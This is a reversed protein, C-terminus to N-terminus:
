GRSWPADGIREYETRCAECRGIRRTFGDPFVPTYHRLTNTVTVEWLMNLEGGCDPCRDVLM